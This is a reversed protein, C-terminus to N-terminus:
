EQTSQKYMYTFSLLTDVHMKYCLLNLYLKINQEYKIYSHIKELSTWFRNRNKDGSRLYINIMLCARM